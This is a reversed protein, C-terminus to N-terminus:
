SGSHCVLRHLDHLLHRKMCVYPPCNETKVISFQSFHPKPTVRRCWLQLQFMYWLSWNSKSTSNAKEATINYWGIRYSKWKPNFIFPQRNQSFHVICLNGPVTKRGEEVGKRGGEEEERGGKRKRVEVEGYTVISNTRHSKERELVIYIQVQFFFIRKMGHNDNSTRTSPAQLMFCEELSYLTDWFGHVKEFITKEKQLTLHFM